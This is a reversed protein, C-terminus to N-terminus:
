IGFNKPLRRAKGSTTPGHASKGRKTKKAPLWGFGLRKLNGDFKKRQRKRVEIGTKWIKWVDDQTPLDRTETTATKIAEVTDVEHPELELYKNDQNDPELLKLLNGAETLSQSGHKYVGVTLYHRSENALDEWLEYNARKSFPRNPHNNAARLLEQELLKRPVFDEWTRKEVAQKGIMLALSYIAPMSITKPDDKFYWWEGKGSGGFTLKSLFAFYSPCVWVPDDSGFEVSIFGSFGRGRATWSSEGTEEKTFREM